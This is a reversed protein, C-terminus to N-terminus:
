RVLVEPAGAASYVICGEKPAIVLLRRWRAGSATGDDCLGQAEATTLSSLLKKDGDLVGAVDTLLLLSDAKLASAIVGAMTDANVNYSAGGDGTAM